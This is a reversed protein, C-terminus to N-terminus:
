GLRPYLVAAIAAAVVAAGLLVGYDLPLNAAQGLLLGRLADVLYSLPNAVAIDKLWGPMISLPYLANSAFFLPMTLVQGIGMFRERSRVLAAMIMSFGAFFGAGLIVAVFAGLIALLTYHLPIEMFLSVVLVIVAQATGRLGAATMKGVIISYRPTPTVLIKQLIGLDREWIVAIGYFIAIFVVSQALIGPALFQLYTYPGTPVARLRSMAQGFVALWLFPQVARTLIDYPDHRLQEIEAQAIALVKAAATDAWGAPRAALRPQTM